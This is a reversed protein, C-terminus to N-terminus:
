KVPDGSMESCDRCQQKKQCYDRNERFVLEIASWLSDM